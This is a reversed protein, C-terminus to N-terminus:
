DSPAGGIKRGRDGWKPGRWNSIVIGPPLLEVARANRERILAADIRQMEHEPVVAQASLEKLVRLRNSKERILKDCRAINNKLSGCFLLGVDARHRPLGCKILRVVHVDADFVSVILVPYKGCLLVAGRCLKQRREM